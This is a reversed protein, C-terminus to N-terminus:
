LGLSSWRRRGYGRRSGRRVIAILRVRRLNMAVLHMVNFLAGAVRNQEQVAVGRPRVQPSVDDRKYAGQPFTYCGVQDSHAPRVLRRNFVAEEVLELVEFTEDLSKAK